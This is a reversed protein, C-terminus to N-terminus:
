GEGIGRSRRAERLFFLLDELLQLLARGTCEACRLDILRRLSLDLGITTTAFKMGIRRLSQLGLKFALLVRFSAFNSSRFILRQAPARTTVPAITSTDSIESHSCRASSDRM